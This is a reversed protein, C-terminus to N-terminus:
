PRLAPRQNTRETIGCAFGPPKIVLFDSSIKEPLRGTLSGVLSSLAHQRTLAGLVVVDCDKNRAHNSLIRAPDGELVSVHSRPIGANAALEHLVAQKASFEWTWSGNADGYIIDVAGERRGALFQAQAVIDRELSSVRGVSLDVAAIARLSSKWPRTRTLLLPAPCSRVLEWDTEDPYGEGSLPRAGMNRVVMLPKMRIAKRVVAEYEPTECAVDFSTPINRLDVANAVRALFSRASALCRERAEQATGPEYQHELAYACEADCFFLELSLEHARAIAAAKTLAAIAGKEDHGVAALIQPM